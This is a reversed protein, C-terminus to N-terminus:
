GEIAKPLQESRPDKNPGRQSPGVAGVDLEAPLPQAVGINCHTLQQPESLTLLM